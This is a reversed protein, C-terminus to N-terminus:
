PHRTVRPLKAKRKIRGVTSPVAVADPRKFINMGNRLKVLGMKHLQDITFNSLAGEGSGQRSQRTELLSGLSLGGPGTSGGASGAAAGLVNGGQAGHVGGLTGQDM